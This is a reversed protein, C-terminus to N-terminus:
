ATFCYESNTFMKELYNIYNDEAESVIIWCGMSIGNKL